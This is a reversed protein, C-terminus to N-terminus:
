ISVMDLTPTPLSTVQSIGYLPAYALETVSSTKNGLFYIGFIVLLPIVMFLQMLQAFKRKALKFFFWLTPKRSEQEYVGKGDKNM